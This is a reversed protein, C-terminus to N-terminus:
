SAPVPLQRLAERIDAMVGNKEADFSMKYWNLSKDFDALTTSAGAM